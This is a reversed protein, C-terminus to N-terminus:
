IKNVRRLHRGGEFSENLFINVLEICKNITLFRAPLSIINADNHQRALKTIEENWCIAARILKHKNAAMSVGNGSGCILIGFDSGAEVEKAVLHAYKPYDVSETTFTGVDLVSHKEGELFRVIKSKYEVGAHDSGITIKM